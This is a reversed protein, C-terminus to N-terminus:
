LKRVRALAALIAPDNKTEALPTLQEEIYQWDLRGRNRVAVSEADALDLPRSAFLKLVILDEASCTRIDVGPAFSFLSARCILREEFSLAGLSIDIGVGEPTQVLLVRNRRAFEDANALRPTYNALVTEIFTDERGFGALLVLDVDRTVRPEGWRQVAVGGIFCSQWGQRDAFDQFQKAAEFLTIM